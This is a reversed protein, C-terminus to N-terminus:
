TSFYGCRDLSGSDESLIDRSDRGIMDSWQQIFAAPGFPTSMISGHGEQPDEGAKGEDAGGVTLGAKM